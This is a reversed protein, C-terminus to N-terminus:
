PCPIPVYDTTMWNKRYCGVENQWYSGQPSTREVAGAPPNGLTPNPGAPPTVLTDFDTRAQGSGELRLAPTSPALPDDLGQWRAPDHRQQYQQQWTQQHWRQNQQWAKQQQWRQELPPAGIPRQSKYGANWNPPQNALLMLALIATSTIGM